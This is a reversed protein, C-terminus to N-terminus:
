RSAFEPVDIFLLKVLGCHVEDGDRLRRPKSGVRVRNIFTGNVSSLDRLLVGDETSAIAAHVRSADGRIGLSFDVFREDRGLTGPKGRKLLFKKGVMPPDLEHQTVELYPVDCRSASVPDGVIRTREEPPNQSGNM